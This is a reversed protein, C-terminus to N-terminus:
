TRRLYRCSYMSALIAALGAHLALQGASEAIPKYGDRRMLELLGGDGVLHLAGVVVFYDQQEQLLKEIQPMWRRNRDSVLMRYLAPFSKYEESLLAGLRAADGNRWATIM